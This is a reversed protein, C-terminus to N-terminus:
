ESIIKMVEATIVSSENGDEMCLDVCRDCLKAIVAVSTKPPVGLVKRCFEPTPEFVAVFDTLGGCHVCPQQDALTDYYNNAGVIVLPGDGAFRSAVAIVKQAMARTRLDRDGEAEMAKRFLDAASSTKAATSMSKKM